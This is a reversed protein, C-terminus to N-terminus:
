TSAGCTFWSKWTSITFWTGGPKFALLPINAEWSRLSVRQWYRRCLSFFSIMSEWTCSFVDSCWRLPQIQHRNSVYVSAQEEQITRNTSFEETHLDVLVAPVSLYRQDLQHGRVLLLLRVGQFEQVALYPTVM